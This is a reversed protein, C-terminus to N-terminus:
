FRYLKVIKDMKIFEFVWFFFNLFGQIYISDLHINEFFFVILFIIKPHKISPTTFQKIKSNALMMTYFKNIM